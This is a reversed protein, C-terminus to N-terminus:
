RKQKKKPKLLKKAEPLIEKYQKLKEYADSQRYMKKYNVNRLSKPVDNQMQEPFMDGGEAEDYGVNQRAENRTIIGANKLKVAENVITDRDDALQTM